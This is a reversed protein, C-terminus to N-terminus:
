HTILGKVAAKARTIGERREPDIHTIVRNGTRNKETVTVDGTSTSSLRGLSM